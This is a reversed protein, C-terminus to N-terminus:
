RNKLAELKLEQEVLKSRLTEIESVVTKLRTHAQQSEDATVIEDGQLSLLRKYENRRLAEIEEAVELQKQLSAVFAELRGTDAKWQAMLKASYALALKAQRPYDRNDDTRYVSAPIDWGDAFASVLRYLHQGNKRGEVADTLLRSLLARSQPTKYEAMAGLLLLPLSDHHRDLLKEFKPMAEKPKVDRLACGAATAIEMNADDMHKLLVPVAEGGAWRLSLLIILRCGLKTEGELLELMQKTRFTHGARFLALICAMRVTTNQRKDDATKEIMAHEGNKVFEALIHVIEYPFLRPEGGPEADTRYGGHALVLPIMTPHLPPYEFRGSSSEGQVRYYVNHYARYATDTKGGSGTFDGHYQVEKLLNTILIQLQGPTMKAPDIVLRDKEKRWWENFIKLIKPRMRTELEPGAEYLKPLEHGSIAMITKRYEPIMVHCSSRKAHIVMYRLLLPISALDRHQKLLRTAKSYNTWHSSNNTAVLLDEAELLYEVHDSEKLLEVFDRELMYLLEDEAPTRLTMRNKLKSATDVTEDDASISPLPIFLGLAFIVSISSRWRLTFDGPFIRHISM